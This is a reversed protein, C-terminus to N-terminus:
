GFREEIEDSDGEENGKMMSVENEQASECLRAM